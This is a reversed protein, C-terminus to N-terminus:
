DSSRGLCCRQRVSSASLIEAIEAARCSQEAAGALILRGKPGSRMDERGLQRVSGKFRVKLEADEAKRDRTYCCFELQIGNPDELYISKAWEHDIVETVKIGKAVLEQRKQELAGDSGAEFAFHNFASPLGQGRNIGADYEKPIGPVDRAEMFAVLQDRGADMIAHRISGSEVTPIEDFRM